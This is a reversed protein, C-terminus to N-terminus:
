LGFLYSLKVFFGDSERRLEDLRFRRPEVLRSTYGAFIV